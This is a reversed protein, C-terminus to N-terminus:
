AAVTDQVRMVPPTQLTALAGSPRADGDFLAVCLPPLFWVLYLFAWYNGALQLGILIAAGLSAFRTRDGALHPNRWVAATAAAILGLLCAQALPQVSELGLVRWVSQFSGRTFQYSVARLMTGPGAMGGVGILLGAVAVSVIAFAALAWALRRGRLPALLLPLLAFPALKFWGAVALMASGAAPRRWLVLATMLMAAMVVDTTGTSATILVPPFTLVALAACLGAEEVDPARASRRASAARTVCRFAGWAAALGALAAAALAGDVSYWVSRVPALLALPAYLAYSLIPYTDGHIIGLPMHGYPLVGDLLKTAGEMVAYTVDVADPSSVCVMVFILAVVILAVRLWRVRIATPLQSTLKALVPTYPAVRRGSGGFGKWACRALLYMLGPAAAVLSADLYRHQFLVISSVLSLAAAADLNRIRRWPTVATMLLFVLSLAVVLAPQYAIWDGYPVRARRADAGETVRARRDVAAEALIQGKAWFSVRELQADISDAKVEDWHSGALARQMEPDRLAANTAARPSIPTAPPHHASALVVGAILAVALGALLPSLQRRRARLRRLGFM